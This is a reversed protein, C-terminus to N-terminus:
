LRKDDDDNNDGGGGGGAEDDDDDDDGGDHGTKARYRDMDQDRFQAADEHQDHKAM